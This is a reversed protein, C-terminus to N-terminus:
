FHFVLGAGLSRVYDSEIRFSVLPKWPYDVGGGLQFAFGNIGSALQPYVHIGGALAPGLTAM